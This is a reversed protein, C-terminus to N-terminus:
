VRQTFISEELHLLKSANRWAFLEKEQRSVPLSELWARAGNLSLYPYDVSFLLREMGLMERLFLFHPLSTMGSPTVYFNSKFTESLTRRLGTAKRPISDDLRQLFFPVFEGWHGCIITLNPLADFIGSLLLRVIQVGEENHWGWGFMSLRASVERSFGTYYHSRVDELPLGPHLFLPVKQAAIGELVPLYGRDDLFTSGPRGNLIVGRFGLASTCRKLEDVAAKPEQWPLTAFAAFRTPHKSVARALADNAEACLRIGTKGPLFQPSATSSVVQMDIAHREMDALRGNGMDLLKRGSEKAALVRPRTESAGGLDTVDKGWDTLYTASPLLHPMLAQLLEQHVVHEEVCVIPLHDGSAQADRLALTAGLCTVGQLFNRRSFPM